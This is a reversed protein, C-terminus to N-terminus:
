SREKPSMLWYAVAYASTLAIVGMVVFMGNVGGSLGTTLSLAAFSLNGWDLIKEAFNEQQAPTLHRTM